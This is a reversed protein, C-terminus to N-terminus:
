GLAKINLVPKLHELINIYPEICQKILEPNKYAFASEDITEKVVSTSFVDKMSEQFEKLSVSHSAEARSWNRGLGHPSSYNTEENDTKGQCIWIGDRMNLSVISKRDKYCAIAGKRIIFDNFDIYNHISEALYEAKYEVNFVNTLVNRLMLFRNLQAYKQAFIMDFYYLYAEEGELYDAHSVKTYKAKIGDLEKALNIPDKKNLKKLRRSEKAEGEWDFEKAKDIKDQHLSCIKQGFGRSGSHLTLYYCKNQDINIEIFHNGSGLTGLSRLVNDHNIKIEKCKNRFWEISYNPIWKKIDVKFKDEYAKAFNVATEKAIKCLQLLDDHKVSQSNHMSAGLPINDRIQKDIKEFRMEKTYDALKYTSIGCGIDGGILRPVIKDTLVCTFGVCAGGGFHCDPMVRAHKVYPQKILNKIQNLTEDNINERNLFVKADIGKEPDSLDYEMNIIIM